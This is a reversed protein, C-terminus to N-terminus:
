RRTSTSSSSSTSRAGNDVPELQPHGRGPLLGEGRVEGPDEEGNSRVADMDLITAAKVDIQEKLDDKSLEENGQLKVARVSPREQVRVVYAVGKPLRQVLLQVDTFYGLGWIARLDEATKTPDFIAGQKTVLARRIAEAEVRRNGEIRIEVVQAGQEESPRSSRGRSRGRPARRHRSDPGAGRSASAPTGTQAQALARCPALAWLTLAILPLLTKRSLVPSRM